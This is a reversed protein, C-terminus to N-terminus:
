RGHANGDKLTRANGKRGEKRGEQEGEKGVEKRRDIDRTRFRRKRGDM